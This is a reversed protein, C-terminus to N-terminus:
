KDRKYHASNGQPPTYVTKIDGGMPALIKTMLREAWGELENMGANIGRNGSNLQDTLVGFEREHKNVIKHTLKPM